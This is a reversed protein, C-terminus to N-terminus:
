VVQEVKIGSQELLKLGAPESSSQAFVVRSLETRSLIRCCQPCPSITVYLTVGRLGIRRRRAQEIIEMEAHNCDYYNQDGSAARFKERLSGNYLAYTEFPIVVNHALIKPKGKRALVAGVPWTWEFSRKSVEDALELLEKDTYIKYKDIKIKYNKRRKIKKDFNRAEKEDLFAKEIKIEAGADLARWYEDRLHIARKYSGNVFIVKKPKLESILYSLDEHRHEIIRVKGLGIEGLGEVVKEVEKLKLTKFQEFELEPIFSEKLVGFLFYSGEEAYKEVLSKIKEKSMERSGALFVLNEKKSIEKKKEQNLKNWDLIKIEM